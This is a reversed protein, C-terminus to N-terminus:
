PYVMRYFVNTKSADINLSLNTVTASGAISHWDSSSVLSVANSQIAWGLRDPSWSLNLTNGSVSANITGPTTNIPPTVSAVSISGNVAVNNNWTYVNGTADTTALSIGTFATVASPFLQFTDGVQLAAGINTVQLIGGYTITGLDSVLVDHNPSLSRNLELLLKGGLTINNTVRLTGVTTGPNVTSGAATLLNGNLSGAGTLTQNTNLTLTQDGRGTVDLTAGSAISIIASNSISGSLALTGGGITTNGTYANDAALTQVNGGNKILAVAGDITGLYTRDGNGFSFGLTLTATALSSNTVQGGNGGLGDIQESQGNLDFSGGNIAITRNNFLQDGNGGPAIRVVGNNLVLDSGASVTGGVVRGVVGFAKALVATGNNVILGMFSNDANGGYTITGTSDQTVIFTGGATINPVTIDGSGGITFAAGNWSTSTIAAPTVSSNILAGAGGVGTGVLTGISEATTQGNLDLTAGAGVSTAGSPAGLASSTGLQVTGAIITTAGSYSNTGSLILTGGTTKQLGGSGGLNASITGNEVYTSAPSLVGTGAITGNTLGLAGITDSNPGINLTGNDVNVAGTDALTNTPNNLLLTAAGSILTGGSYTNTNHLAVTGAGTVAVGRAGTVPALITLRNAADAVTWVQDVALALNAVSIVNSGAGSNVTVSGNLTLTNAGGITVNNPTNLILNHIGFDAGLTTNFNGAGNAAFTVDTPISPINGLDIGSSQDTDWNRNGASNANWVGSVDGKWFAASPAAVSVTLILNVTDDSLALTYGPISTGLTFNAASIGSAGTILNYTGAGFGGIQSIYVTASGTQAFAGSVAISDATAGVDFALVNGGSLTLGTVGNGLTLTAAANNTLKIGANGSSLTIPGAVTGSGGLAGPAYISVNTTALGTVLLLGNSIVTNGTYACANALTLTGTGVKTLATNGVNDLINGSYTSSTNLAGIEYTAVTGAVSNRVNALGRTSDTFSLSGLRIIADGVGAWQLIANNVASVTGGPGSMVWAANPSGALNSGDKFQISLTHSNNAGGTVDHIFTGAFASIDGALRTTPSFGSRFELIGTGTISGNLGVNGNNSFEFGNTTGAAIVLNNPITGNFNALYLNRLFTGGINTLIIPGTGLSAGNVTGLRITGLNIITGGSHTSPLVPSINWEATGTKFLTGNGTFRNNATIGATVNMTLTVPSGATNTLAVDGNGQIGKTLYSTSGSGFRLANDQSVFVISNSVADTQGLELTGRGAITNGSYVNASGLVLKGPGSKILSSSGSGLTANITLTGTGMQHIINETNLSGIQGNQITFNNGGTMLFGRSINTLVNGGGGLDLTGSNATTDIALSNVSRAAIGNNWNFISGDAVYSYNVTTSNANDTLPTAGAYRTVTNGTLTAFGIGTGDNIAAYAPNLIGNAVAPATGISLTSGTSNIQLASAANRTVSALRLTTATGGNNTLILGSGTNGQLTLM